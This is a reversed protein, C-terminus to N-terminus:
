NGERLSDFYEKAHERQSRPLRQGTLPDAADHKASEIQAKIEAQVQGRVNPGDTEGATVAAGKDLKQKVNSEFFKFGTKAEPRQGEAKGQGKAFDSHGWQDERQKGASEGAGNGDSKCGTMSCKADAIQDLAQDLMAAEESQQKLEGLQDALQQLSQNAEKSAQKGDKGAGKKLSQSAQGLKQAMQKMQNMQSAQQKVKDLQQQLKQADATKGADKMQQIQRELDKQMQEHKEALKQLNDKMAELQQALQQQKQPDLGDKALQDRLKDIEKMAKEFRGNKLADALKDAPGDKMDKMQNLQQRLKDDGALKERRSELQKSLDNLKVLAQKKDAGNKEALEKVGEEIKKFLDGADPLGKENAEKRREALKRRLEETSQQVLKNDQQQQSAQAQQEPQKDAIFMLGFVVVAPLLPLLNKRSLALKFRSGVDIREVRRVADSVLAQGIPTERESPPLALTSSVREKLGFRRDIEIAATLRSDRRFWAFTAAVLLGVALTAGIWAASWIWGDIPLPWIKVVGVAIAAVLLSGFWSWALATLFRSLTLSRQARAVQKALTDM